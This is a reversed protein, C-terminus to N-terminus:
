LYKGEQTVQLRGNKKSQVKFMRLGFVNHLILADVKGKLYGGDILRNLQKVYVSVAKPDKKTLSQKYCSITCCVFENFQFFELDSIKKGIKKINEGDYVQIRSAIVNDCHTIIGNDLLCSFAKDPLSGPMPANPIREIYKLSLVEHKQKVTIM